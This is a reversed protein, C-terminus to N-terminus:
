IHRAKSIKFHWIWVWVCETRREGEGVWVNGGAQHAKLEAYIAGAVWRMMCVWLRLRLEATMTDLPPVIHSWWIGSAYRWYCQFCFNELIYIKFKYIDKPLYRFVYISVMRMLLCCYCHVVCWKSHRCCCQTSNGGSWCLLSGPAESGTSITSYILSPIVYEWKMCHWTNWVGEEGERGCQSSAFLYKRSNMVSKERKVDFSIKM